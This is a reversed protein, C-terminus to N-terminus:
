RRRLDGRDSLFRLRDDLRDLRAEIRYAERPSVGDRGSRWADRRVDRLDDRLRFVQEPRIRGSRSAWDIRRDLRAIRDRLDGRLPSGYSVRDYGGLPQAQAAAGGALAAAATAASLIIKRLTTM